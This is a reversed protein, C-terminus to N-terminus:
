SFPMLKNSPPPPVTIHVSVLTTCNLQDWHQSRLTIHLFIQKGKRRGNPVLNPFISPWRNQFGGESMTGMLTLSRHEFTLFAKCTNWFLSALFMVVFCCIFCKLFQQMRSVYGLCMLFYLLVVCLYARSLFACLIYHRFYLEKLM